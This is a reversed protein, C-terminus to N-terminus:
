DIPIPIADKILDTLKRIPSDDSSEYEVLAVRGNATHRIAMNKAKPFKMRLGAWFVKRGAKCFDNGNVVLGHPLDMEQEDLFSELTDVALKLGFLSEFEEPLNFCIITEEEKVEKLASLELEMDRGTIEKLLNKWVNQESM